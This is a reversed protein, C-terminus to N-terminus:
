AVRMECTHWASSRESDIDCRRSHRFLGRSACSHCLLSRLAMDCSHGQMKCLQMISVTVALTVVFHMCWMKACRLLPKRPGTYLCTTACWSRFTLCLMEQIQGGYGNGGCSIPIVTGKRKIYEIVEIISSIDLRPSVTYWLCRFRNSMDRSLPWVTCSSFLSRWGLIRRLYHNSPDEADNTLKGQLADELKMTLLADKKYNSPAQLCRRILLQIQLFM